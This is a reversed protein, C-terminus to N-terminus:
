WITSRSSASAPGSRHKDEGEVACEERLAVHHAMEQILGSNLRFPEGDVADVFTERHGRDLREEGVAVETRGVVAVDAAFDRALSEHRKEGPEVAGREPERGVDVGADGAAVGMDEVPGFAPEAGTEGDGRAIIRGADAAFLVHEAEVLGVEGSEVRERALGPQLAQGGAQGGGGRRPRPRGEGRAAGTPRAGHSRTLSM